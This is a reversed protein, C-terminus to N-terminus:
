KPWGTFTEWGRNRWFINQLAEIDSKPWGISLCFSLWEGCLRHKTQKNMELGKCESVPLDIM